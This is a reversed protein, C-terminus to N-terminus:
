KRKKAGPTGSRKALLSREKPKGPTISRYRISKESRRSKRQKNELRNLPPLSKLSKVSNFVKVPQKAPQPLPAKVLKDDISSDLSKFEEQDPEELGDTLDKGQMEKLVQTYNSASVELESQKRAEGTEMLDKLTVHNPEYCRETNILEFVLNERESVPVGEQKFIELLDIERMDKQMLKEVKNKIRSAKNPTISNNTTQDQLNLLKNFLRIKTEQDFVSPSPIYPFRIQEESHPVNYSFYEPLPAALPSPPETYLENPDVLEYYKEDTAKTISILNKAVGELTTILLQIHENLKEITNQEPTKLDPSDKSSANEKNELTSNFSSLFEEGEELPKYKIQEEMVHAPVLSSLAKRMETDTTKLFKVFGKRCSEKYEKTVLSMRQMDRKLKKSQYNFAKKITQLESNLHKTIELVPKVLTSNQRHLKAITREKKYIM